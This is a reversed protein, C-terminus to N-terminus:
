LGKMLWEVAKNRSYFVQRLRPKQRQRRLFLEAMHATITNSLVLAARGALDPRAQVMEKARWVAYPTAAVTKATLDHLVLFPRDAPWRMIDAKFTEVWVDATERSSSTLVYVLIRGDLLWERRVGRSLQEAGFPTIDTPLSTTQNRVHFARGPQRASGTDVSVNTIMSTVALRLLARTLWLLILAIGQRIDCLARRISNTTM